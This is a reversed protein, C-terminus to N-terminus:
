TTKTKRLYIILIFIIFGVILGSYFLRSVMKPDGRLLNCWKTPDGGFLPFLYCPVVMFLISFSLPLSLFLLFLLAKAKTFAM